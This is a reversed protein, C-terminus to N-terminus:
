LGEERNWRYEPLCQRPIIKKDVTIVLVYECMRKLVETQAQLRKEIQRSSSVITDHATEYSKIVAAQKELQKELNSLRKLTEESDTPLQVPQQIQVPPEVMRASNYRDHVLVLMYTTLILLYIVSFIYIWSNKLWNILANLNTKM